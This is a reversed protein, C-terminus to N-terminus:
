TSRPMRVLNVEISQSDQEIFKKEATRGEVGGFFLFDELGNEVWLGLEGLSWSNWFLHFGQDFAQKGFIRAMTNTRQFSDFFDHGMRPEFDLVTFCDFQGISEKVFIASWSFTLELFCFIDKGKLLWVSLELLYKEGLIEHVAREIIFHGGFHLFECSLFSMCCAGEGLATWFSLSDYIKINKM